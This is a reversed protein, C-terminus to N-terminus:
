SKKDDDVEKFDADVTDQGTEASEKQEGDPEDKKFLKDTLPQSIKSLDEVATDIDEKSEGKCAEEVAAISESLSKFEDESLKDKNEEAAKKTSSAMSDAMNRSTVLEEFKKDEEANAEADKM